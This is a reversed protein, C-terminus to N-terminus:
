GIAKFLEETHAGSASFIAFLFHAWHYPVGQVSIENSFTFYFVKNVDCGREILTEAVDNNYNELAVHLCGASDVDAGHDLFEKVMDNDGDQCIFYLPTLGDKDAINLDEGQEILRRCEEIDAEIAAEHLKTRGLDDDPNDVDEPCSM